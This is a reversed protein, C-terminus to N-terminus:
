GTEVGAIVEATEKFARVNDFGEVIINEATM